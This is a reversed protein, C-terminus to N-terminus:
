THDIHVNTQRMSTISANEAIIFPPEIKLFLFYHFKKFCKNTKPAARVLNTSFYHQVAQPLIVSKTMM